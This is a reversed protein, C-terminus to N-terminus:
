DDSGIPIVIEELVDVLPQCDGDIAAISAELFRDPDVAHFIIDYGANWALTNFFFRATRGNGDNFPHLAEMEGMFYALENIFDDTDETEKLYKVNRLKEFIEDAQKEIYEPRCFETRRSASTCRIMGASPYIDSFLKHHIAQLYSFTLGMDLPSMLLDCTRVSSIFMDIKKLDKRDRINFYNVFCRSDPYRGLEDYSADYRDTLGNDSIFREVADNPDLDGSLIEEFVSEAMEPFEIGEFEYCFKLYDVVAERQANKM